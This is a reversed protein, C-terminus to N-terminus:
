SAIYEGIININFATITDITMSRDAEPLACISVNNPIDTPVETVIM